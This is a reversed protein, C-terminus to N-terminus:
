PRASPTAPQQSNQAAAAERSSLLIVQVGQSGTIRLADFLRKSEQLSEGKEEIRIGILNENGLAGGRSQLVDKRGRRNGLTLVEFPGYETTNLGSAGNGAGAGARGGPGPTALVFLVMDGPNIHDSAMMRQDVPVWRLTEGAGLEDSMRGLSPTKLDELLIIEGGDYARIATEGIVTGRDRWQVAAEPLSGAGELPIDFAELHSEKFREGPNLHVGRKVAVFYIKDYNAAQQYIYFWNCVAGVIGLAAAIALGQMGRM